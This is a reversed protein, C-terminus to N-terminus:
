LLNQMPQLKDQSECFSASYLTTKADRCQPTQRNCQLPPISPELETMVLVLRSQITAARFLASKECLLVVLMIADTMASDRPVHHKLRSQRTPLPADLQSHYDNWVCVRSEDGRCKHICNQYSFVEGVQCLPSPDAHRAPRGDDPM